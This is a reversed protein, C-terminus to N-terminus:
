HIATPQATYTGDAATIMWIRVDKGDPRSDKEHFRVGATTSHGVGTIHHRDDAAVVVLDIQNIFDHVDKPARGNVV